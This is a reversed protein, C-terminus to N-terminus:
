NSTTIRSMFPMNINSWSRSPGSFVEIAGILSNTAAVEVAADDHGDHARRTLAKEGGEIVEIIRM